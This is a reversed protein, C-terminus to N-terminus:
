KNITVKGLVNACNKLLSLDVYTRFNEKVAKISKFSHCMRYLFLVEKIFMQGSNRIYSSPDSFQLRRKQLARNVIIDLSRQTFLTWVCLKKQDKNEQIRVSYPSKSWLDGYETRIYSFASWFFIPIQASKM